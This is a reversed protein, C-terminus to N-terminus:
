ISSLILSAIIKNLVVAELEDIQFFTFLGFM